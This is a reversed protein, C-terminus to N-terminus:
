CPERGKCTTAAFSLASEIFKHLHALFPSLPTDNYPSPLLSLSLSPLLTFFPSLSLSIHPFSSDRSGEFLFNKKIIRHRRRGM